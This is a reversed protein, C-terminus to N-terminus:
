NNIFTGRFVGDTVIKRSACATEESCTFSFTGEIKTDNLMTITITGGANSCAATSWGMNSGRGSVVYGVMSGSNADLQYTGPQTINILNISISQVQTDALEQANACDVTIISQEGFTSRTAVGLSRGQIAYTTFAAGDVTATIYTSLDANGGQESDGSCSAFLWAALILAIYGPHTLVKM